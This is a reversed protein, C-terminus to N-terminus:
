KKKKKQVGEIEDKELLKEYMLKVINDMQKQKPIMLESNPGSLHGIHDLCCFCFKWIM